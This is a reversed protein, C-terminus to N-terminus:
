DKVCRISMGYIYGDSYTHLIASRDHDLRTYWAGPRGEESSDDSTWFFANEGIYRFVGTSERYGGPLGKFGYEDIAGTNPSWWLAHGKEKLIGGAVNDGGIYDILIQWDEDTSVHWGLPAINREDDVAAWNYLLGYIDNYAASNDYVCWAGAALNSWESNDTVNAMEDGNRYHTVKLNEAMWIQNGIKVTKYVNGDIDTVTEQEESIEFTISDIESINYGHMEGDKTHINLTQSFSISVM